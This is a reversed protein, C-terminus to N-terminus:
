DLGTEGDFADRDAENEFGIVAWAERQGARRLSEVRHNGDELV